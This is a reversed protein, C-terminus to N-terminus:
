KALSLRRIYETIQHNILGDSAYDFLTDLLAAVRDGGGELFNFEQKIEYVGDERLEIATGAHNLQSPIDTVSDGVNCVRFTKYKLMADYNSAFLMDGVKPQGYTYVNGVQKGQELWSRAALMALAGGQSYGVFCVSQEKTQFEDIKLVIEKWVQSLTEWFGQHVRGTFMPIMRNDLNSVWDELSQSETGRFVVAITQDDGMVFAQADFGNQNGHFFEFNNVGKGIELKTKIAEESLYAVECLQAFVLANEIKFETDNM